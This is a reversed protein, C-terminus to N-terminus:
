ARRARLAGLGLLGLGLLTLTGPEPVSAVTVTDIGYGDDPNNSLITIPALALASELTVYFARGNGLRSGFIDDFFFSIGGVDMRGGADNPDSLYFGVSTTGALATFTLVRADNSDLWNENRAGTPQAFRGSYPSTASDLVALGDCNPECLGGSGAVNLDFTGVSTAFSTARTGAAIGEFTETTFGTAGLSALYASEADKAATSGQDSITLTVGGNDFIIPGAQAACSLCLLALALGVSRFDFRRTM